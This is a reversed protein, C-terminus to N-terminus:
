RSSYWSARRSCGSLIARSRLSHRPRRASGLRHTALRVAHHQQVLHLLEGGVHQLHEELHKFLPKIPRHRPGHPISKRLVTIMRVEFAPECCMMCAQKWCSSSSETTRHHLDASPTGSASVSASTSRGVSYLGKLGAKTPPGLHHRVVGKFSSTSALTMSSLSVADRRTHLRVM